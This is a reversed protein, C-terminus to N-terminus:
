QEEEQSQPRPNKRQKIIQRATVVIIVIGLAGAIPIAILIAPFRGFREAIVVRTGSYRVRIERSDSDERFVGRVRLFLDDQSYRQGTTVEFVGSEESQVRVTLSVINRRSVSSGGSSGRPHYSGVVKHGTLVATTETGSVFVILDRVVPMGAFELAASAGALLVIGFVLSKVMDGRKMTFEKQFKIM